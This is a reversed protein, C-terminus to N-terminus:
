KPQGIWSTLLDAFMQQGNEGPHVTDTTDWNPSTTVDPDYPVAELREDDRLVGNITACGANRDALYTHESCTAWLVRRAKTAALLRRVHLSYDEGNAVAQADNTGLVVVVTDPHWQADLLTLTAPWDRGTTAETLATLGSGNTHLLHSNWGNAQIQPQLEDGTLGLISDGVLVVDSSGASAPSAWLWLMGALGIGVLLKKM